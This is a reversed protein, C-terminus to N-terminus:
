TMSLTVPLLVEKFFKRSIFIETVNCGGVKSTFPLVKSFCSQYYAQRIRQDSSLIEAAGGSDEAGGRLARGTWGLPGRQELVQGAASEPRSPTKTKM